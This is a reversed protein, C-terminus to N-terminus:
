RAENVPGCVLRRKGSSPSCQNLPTPEHIVICRGRLGPVWPQSQDRLPDVLGEFANAVSPHRGAVRGRTVTALGDALAGGIESRAAFSSVASNGSLYSSPLQPGPSQAVGPLNIQSPSGMPVTPGVIVGGGNRLGDPDVLSLMNGEVYAYTTIGGRLGIPDSQVYGGDRLEYEGDYDYGVAVELDWAGDRGWAYSTCLAGTSIRADTLRAEARWEQQTHDYNRASTDLDYNCRMGSARCAVAARRHEITARRIVGTRRRIPTRVRGCELATAQPLLVGRQRRTQM